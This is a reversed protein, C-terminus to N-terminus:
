QPLSSVSCASVACCILMVTGKSAGRLAVYVDTNRSDQSGTGVKVGQKKLDDFFSFAQLYVCVLYM